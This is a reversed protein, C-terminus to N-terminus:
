KWLIQKPLKRMWTSISGAGMGIIIKRGYTNKKLFSSLQINNEVMFLKVKSNKIIEKAFKFYSFGLKIKEGATYIPCLIVTDANKFAM